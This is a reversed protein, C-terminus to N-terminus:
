IVGSTMQMMSEIKDDWVVEWTLGVVDEAIIFLDCISKDPLLWSLGHRVEISNLFMGRCGIKWHELSPCEM